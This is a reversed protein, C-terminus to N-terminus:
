LNVIKAKPAELQEVQFAKKLILAHEEAGAKIYKLFAQQTAHGTVMM